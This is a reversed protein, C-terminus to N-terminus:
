CLLCHLCNAYDQLTVNRCKGAVDNICQRRQQINQPNPYQQNCRDLVLQVKPYDAPALGIQEKTILLGRLENGLQNQAVANKEVEGLTGFIKQADDLSINNFYNVEDNDPVIFGGDI